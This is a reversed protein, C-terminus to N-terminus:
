PERSRLPTRWNPLGHTENRYPDVGIHLRVKFAKVHVALRRLAAADADAQRARTQMNEQFVPSDKGPRELLDPLGPIKESLILDPKFSAPVSRLNERGGPGQKQFDRM